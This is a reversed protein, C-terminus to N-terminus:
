RRATWRLGKQDHDLVVRTSKATGNRSVKKVSLGATLLQVGETAEPTRVVGVMALPLLQADAANACINRESM